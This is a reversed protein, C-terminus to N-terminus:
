PTKNKDRYTWILAGLISVSLTSLAFLVYNIFMTYM